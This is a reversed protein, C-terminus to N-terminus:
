CRGNFVVHFDLAGHAAEPANLVRLFGCMRDALMRRLAHFPPLPEEDSGVMRLAAAVFASSM